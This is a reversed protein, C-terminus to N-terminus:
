SERATGPDPGSFAWSMKEQNSTDTLHIDRPDYWKQLPIPNQNTHMFPSEVEEVILVESLKLILRKCGIWVEGVHLWFRQKVLPCRWVSFMSDPGM